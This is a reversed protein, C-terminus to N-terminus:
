RAVGTGVGFRSAIAVIAVVLLIQLVSIAAITPDIEFVIAEFMKKPLTPEAGSLFLAIVLEDFSTIFALFAASVLAPRIQPLTVLWIARLRSAGMGMAALEQAEDFGRLTPAVVLVVFPIAYITHGLVVGYWSGVLQLHAFIGYIAIAIVMNPVIIPAMTVLDVLQRGPYRGRVLSFALLTGLTTALVTTGLGVKISTTLAGIWVPDGLFREYWQLSLAPPPFQLYTSASFSLPFVVLIPATLFLLVLAVYFRLLGARLSIRRPPRAGSLGTTATM